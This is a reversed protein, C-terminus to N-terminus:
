IWSGPYPPAVPLSTRFSISTGILEQLQLYDSECDEIATAKVPWM